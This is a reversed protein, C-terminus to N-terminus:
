RPFHIAISLIRAPYSYRKSEIRPKADEEKRVNFRRRAEEYREKLKDLETTLRTSSGNDQGTTIPTQLHHYFVQVSTEFNIDHKNSIAVRDDSLHEKVM